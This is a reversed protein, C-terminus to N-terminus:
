GKWEGKNAKEWRKSVTKWDVVNWFNDVYTGRMNQYKLYYAHEWVDLALLPIGKESVVDMLPNDQNPTSSVKLKKNADMYLWAWGSGFQTKAANSFEKKFEDMSGFDKVLSNLLRASPEGGDPSMNEWFLRHNYYGGGNNRVSESHGSVNAFIQHMATTEMETGEIAKMFKGYYGRHHKDYHLEMTQADIYPELADYAYGLEPFKHGDITAAASATAGNNNSKKGTPVCASVAAMGVLSLFHRREM